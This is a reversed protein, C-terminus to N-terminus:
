AALGRSAEVWAAGNSIFTVTIAKSATGVVTGTSRLNTGFTITRASTADNNIRVLLVQGSVGPTSANFTSNGVGATTTIDFLTPGAPGSTVLTLPNAYAPSQGPFALGGAIGTIGAGVLLAYQTGITVNAGALPPGAIYHAVATTVTKAVGATLTPQEMYLGVYLPLAAGQDGLDFSGAGKALWIGVCVVVNNRAAGAKIYPWYIRAGIQNTIAQGMSEVQLGIGEAISGSGTVIHDDAHFVSAVPITGTGPVNVNGDYCLASTNITGAGNHTVFTLLGKLKDINGSEGSLTQSAVLIGIVAADGNGSTGAKHYNNVGSVSRTVRLGSTGTVPSDESLDSQVTFLGFNNNSQSTPL